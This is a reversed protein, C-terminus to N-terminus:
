GGAIYFGGGDRLAASSPSNLMASTAPGGDGSTGSSGATGALVTSSSGDFNMRRIVHNGTEALLFYAGAVSLGQPQSLSSAITSITGSSSVRRVTGCSSDSVAFGGVGDVAVGVPRSFHASTASIGEEDPFTPCINSQATGAAITLSASSLNRVQQSSCHQLLM